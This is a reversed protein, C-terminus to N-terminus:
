YVAVENKYFNCFTNCSCYDLCKKSEGKREEIYHKSDVSELMQEALEKNDFVRVASKCGEKMVAWKTESSWREDKSCEYIKDDDIENCKEYQYIKDFIFTEIAELDKDNVDFEYIYTPSQPYQSDFKAKSKSHDKLLAIFKCKKVELGNQKMLWCYVLGQKRWDDFDNYIIKWTSATKFDFLIQNELDYSDVRGTIKTKETAQYEFYEEKFNDDNQKEFISHVASGWIAWINDAVDVEIKDHHRTSLIIEKVGKLLTTCSLTNPKNHREVSVANVFATPLNLRNLFKM